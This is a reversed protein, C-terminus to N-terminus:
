SSIEIFKHPSSTTNSTCSVIRWWHIVINCFRELVSFFSLNFQSSFLRALLQQVVMSAITSFDHWSSNFLRVLGQEMITFAVISCGYWLNHFLQALSQQVIPGPVTACDQWGSKFLQALLLQVVMSSVVSSIPWCNNFFQVLSQQIIKGTFTSCGHCCSVTLYVHWYSNFLLRLIQHLITNIIRPFDHWRSNFLQALSLWFRLRRRNLWGHLQLIAKNCNNIIM